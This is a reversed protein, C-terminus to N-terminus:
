SHHRRCVECGVIQGKSNITAASLKGTPGELGEDTFVITYEQFRQFRGEADYVPFPASLSRYTGNDLDTQELKPISSLRIEGEYCKIWNRWFANPDIAERVHIRCIEEVVGNAADQRLCGDIIFCVGRLDHVCM